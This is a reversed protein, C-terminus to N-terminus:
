KKSFKAWQVNGNKTVRFLYIGPKLSTVDVSISGDTPQPNVHHLAGSVDIIDMNADTEIGSITFFDSAPNPYLNLTERSISLELATILVEFNSSFESVCGDVTVRVKYTGASAVNYNVGTASAIAANDLYWQNGSPASSTLVPNSADNFSSSIIPVRPKICFSKEVAPAANYSANGTQSATLTVHGAANITIQSGSISVKDSSSTITIPLGSSSTAVVTFVNDGVTKDSIAEFTIHQGLKASTNDSFESACNDVTAQVKFVGALAPTYKIDTANAIVSGELYWQNGSSASSTLITNANDDTALSIEPKAPKICFSREVPTAARYSENGPQSATLMVRGAANITVQGDSITVKDSSPTLTVPLGSTSTAVVAFTNDGLTKDSIVEFTITQETKISVNENMVTVAVNGLADFGNFSVSYIAGLVLTPSHTLTVGDHVGENLESGSLHLVQPSNPDETGGTRTWTVTGSELTKSLTYSIQTDNTDITTNAGPATESFVPATQDIIFSEGSEFISNLANGNLDNITADSRVDLRVTGNGVVSSVQVRYVADNMKTVLIDGVTVGDVTAKFDNPNVGTVAESFEVRFRLTSAKTLEIPPLFRTSTLTIPASFDLRAIGARPENNFTDFDGAILLDGDRESAMSFINGNAGPDPAFTEDGSGDANMRILYGGNGAVLIKGDGQMLFALPQPVGGHFTEDVSGDANLRVLNDCQIFNCGFFFGGVLIKGDSQISMPGISAPNFPVWMSPINFTEDPSGDENLRLVHGEQFGAEDEYTGAVLIKGDGQVLMSEVGMQFESPAQFVFSDDWTGDSNLRAVSMAPHGDYTQFYGGILIKGDSQVAIAKITNNAGNGPHFDTDVTGDTNLRAIGPTLIANVHAFQGGILIKEDSQIALSNVGADTGSGPDFTDDLTGDPNLQAIGARQINNYSSFYGGIVIKGDSQLGMARIGPLGTIGAAPDFDFSPNALTLSRNYRVNINIVEQLPAGDTPSIGNFAITYISGDVLTPDDSLFINEHAGENLEQGALVQVHPSGLDQAGGTRTWTITGSSIQGSLTYSVRSSNVRSDAAPSTSSFVPPPPLFRYVQGSAPKSDITVTEEQASATPDASLNNLSLFSNDIQYALGVSASPDSLQGPEQEYIYEIAGTSEYLKVQFSIGADAAQNNWKWHLWEFTFVKNPSEGTTVFSAQGGGGNLDDWLPALLPRADSTRLDNMDTIQPSLNVNFSLFGNSSAQVNNYTEGNFNFEFGIPILFFTSNDTEIGDVPSSQTLPTFTGSTAKFTYSSNSPQITYSEGSTFSTNFSVDDADFMLANDVVLEVIGSGALQITVQYNRPDLEGVSIQSQTIGPGNLTFDDADVGTVDETFTVLFSVTSASTVEAAPYLRIISSIQPPTDPVILAAGNVLTGTFAGPGADVTTGSGEADDFHFLATLGFENGILSTSMNAQIESQTRMTNWIRFEDILGHHFLMTPSYRGIQLQVLQVDPGDSTNSQAALVGDLYIAKFHGGNGESVLAVHTWKGLYSSYDTTIRGDGQPNGYDWILMNDTWPAHAMMSNPSASGISFAAGEVVGGQPVYNWFEITVPGGTNPWTFSNNIVADDVGDLQLANGGVQARLNMSALILLTIITVSIPRQAQQWLRAFAEAASQAQQM